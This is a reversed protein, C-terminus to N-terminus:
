QRVKRRVFFRFAIVAFLFIFLPSGLFGGISAAAETPDPDRSTDHWQDSASEPLINKISDVLAPAASQQGKSPLPLMTPSPPVPRAGQGITAPHAGPQGNDFSSPPAEGQAKARLKAAYDGGGSDCGALAIALLVIVIRFAQKM